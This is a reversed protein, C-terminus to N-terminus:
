FGQSIKFLEFFEPQLAQKVHVVATQLTCTNVWVLGDVLMSGMSSPDYEIVTSGGKPDKRIILDNIIDLYLFPGKEEYFSRSCRFVVNGAPFQECFHGWTCEKGQAACCCLL